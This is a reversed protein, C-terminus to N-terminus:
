PEGIAKRRSSCTIECGSLSLHSRRPADLLREAMVVRMMAAWRSANKEGINGRPGDLLDPIDRDRDAAAVLHM